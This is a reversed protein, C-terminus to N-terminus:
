EPQGICLKIGVPKGGSLERLEAIFACMEQPTSFANHRPPSNCDQEVPWPLNRAEAILPTIKEKPLMGGHVPKAGQSLKIEIMKVHKANEKFLEPDFVREENEGFSGCGFYATGINWVLDAGGELHFMSISGEGTNHSFEGLKAGASLALIARDSLAGYSMASINLLSSSYPQKVLPNNAGIMVRQEGLKTPYMSHNVWEYGPSLTDRKTGFPMTSSIGRARKYVISRHMRSFPVTEEDGEIFYQRIEPRISELIYRVRGLVPFNRRISQKSNIDQIGLYWYGGSGIALGSSLIIDGVLPLSLASMAVLGYGVQKFLNRNWHEIFDPLGASSSGVVRFHGDDSKKVKNSMSSFSSISLHNNTTRSNSISSGGIFTTSGSNTCLLRLCCRQQQRIMIM